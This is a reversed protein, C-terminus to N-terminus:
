RRGPLEAALHRRWFDMQPLVKTAQSRAIRAKAALMRDSGVDEVEITGRRLQDDLDVAPTM